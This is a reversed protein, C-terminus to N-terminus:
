LAAGLTPSMAERASSSTMLANHPQDVRSM